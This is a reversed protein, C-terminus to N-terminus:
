WKLAFNLGDLGKWWWGVKAFETFKQSEYSEVMM